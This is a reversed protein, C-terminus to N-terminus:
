MNIALVSLTVCLFGAEFLPLLIVVLTSPLRIQMPPGLGALTVCHPVTEFVFRLSHYCWGGAAARRQLQSGSQCRSVPWHNEEARAARAVAMYLGRGASGEVSHPLFHGVSLGPHMQRRPRAGPAEVKQISLYALGEM